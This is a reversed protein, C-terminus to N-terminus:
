LPTLKFRNSHILYAHWSFEDSHLWGFIIIYSADTRREHKEVLKEIKDLLDDHRDRYGVFIKFPASINCLKRIDYLISGEANNNEYEVVVSDADDWDWDDQNIKLTWYQDSRLWEYDVEYGLRGAIKALEGPSDKHGSILETFPRESSGKWLRKLEEIISPNRLGELM